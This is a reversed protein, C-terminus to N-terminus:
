AARPLPCAWPGIPSRPMSGAAELEVPASGQPAYLVDGRMVYKRGVEVPMSEHLMRHPFIVARGAWPVVDAVTGGTPRLLVAATAPAFGSPMEDSPAVAEGGCYFRTAGGGDTSDALYVLMSYLSQCQPLFSSGGVRCANDRHPLFFDEADYSLVRLQEWVGAAQGWAAQGGAAHGSTSAAQPTTSETAGGAYAAGGAKPPPSRPAHHASPLGALDAHSAPPLRQAMRAFIEAALGGDTILARRGRRFGEDAKGQHKSMEFGTEHEARTILNACESRSLVNDLVFIRSLHPHHPPAPLPPHPSPAALPQQECVSWQADLWQVWRCSADPPHMSSPPQEARAPASGQREIKALANACKQRDPLSVGLQKLRDLLKPRGDHLLSLLEEQTAASRSLLADLPSDAPHTAVDMHEASSSISLQEPRLRPRRRAGSTLNSRCTKRRMRFFLFVERAFGGCVAGVLSACLGGSLV